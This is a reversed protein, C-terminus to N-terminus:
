SKGHKTELDKLIEALSRGSKELRRREMEEDSLPIKFGPPPKGFPVTEVTRVDQGTASRFVIQGEAAALKAILEPDDIVITTVTAM